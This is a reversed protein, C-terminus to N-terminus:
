KREEKVWIRYAKDDSEEFCRLGTFDVEEIFLNEEGFVEKTQDLWNRYHAGGGFYAKFWKVGNEDTRKRISEERRLVEDIKEASGCGKCSGEKCNINIAPNNDKKM